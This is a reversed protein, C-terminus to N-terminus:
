KGMGNEPVILPIFGFVNSSDPDVVVRVAHVLTDGYVMLKNVGPIPKGKSNRLPAISFYHEDGHILLVPKGFSKAGAEIADLTNIFGSERPMAGNPFRSEDFEAQVFIVVAKANDASAKAFSANIWAVNAKDRAFFEPAADPDQAEFGNNSGPVHATFFMVGNKAFRTNEVYTSFEPMLLAQSEVDLPTKGLSKGPTAFFMERLKALRERPNYGGAAKRHCDLWENDGITYVLAGEFTQIQDYSKKLVEDSCPIGGSKIDGMHLTFAPKLANVAAILRDFKTYDEPLNYPMDGLAVFSFANDGGIHEAAAAPMLAAGIMLTLASLAPLFRM